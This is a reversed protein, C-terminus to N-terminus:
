RQAADHGPGQTRYATKKGDVVMRDAKSPDRPPNLLPPRGALGERQIQREVARATAADNLLTFRYSFSRRILQRTLEDLSFQGRAAGDIQERSLAPLILRDFVYVCFQNGSRRGSAHSALRSRIGTLKGSAPESDAAGASIARGAMGVYLLQDDHWVTYVGIRGNPVAPNPWDAFRYLPGDHLEALAAAMDSTM